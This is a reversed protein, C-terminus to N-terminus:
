FILYIVEDIFPILVVAEWEHKKGNLDTKFDEPYYSKIDSEESLMLHHYCKPLLKKSAAPLVALLQEYPKFPKGLEFDFKIDKFDKIDSIYPAYHHPYFWSWSCVGNYYYHLNWQIAKIYGEAQSKMIEPTIQEYELKNMYYDRKHLRFEEKFNVDEYSSKSKEESIADDFDYEEEIVVDEEKLIDDLNCDRQKKNEELLIDDTAKILAELGSDRFKKPMSDQQEELCSDLFKDIMYKSDVKIDKLNNARKAELYKLDSYYESFHELDVKSLAEMFQQFRELNLIGNENIYGNLDPLVNMYTNYLIPLAGDAIHLDPLHPIFDNGVLFGMLVWDDIIKELDYEFSLRGKLPLFELELYERMLSLHLLYFTIEEPVLIKKTSKKGFKVEERLLAFHREHTCLGLMMLDADLGFLCHRTNPDYGPQARMYRIYDM